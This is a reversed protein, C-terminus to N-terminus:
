FCQIFDKLKQIYIFPEVM